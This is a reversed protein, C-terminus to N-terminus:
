LAFLMGPVASVITFAEDARAKLDMAELVEEVEAPDSRPQLNCISGPAYGASNDPGRWQM